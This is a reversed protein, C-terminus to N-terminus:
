LRILYHIQALNLVHTFSIYLSHFFDVIKISTIYSYFYRIKDVSVRLM